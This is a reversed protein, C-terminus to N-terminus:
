HMMGESTIEREKERRMEPIALGLVAGVTLVVAIAMLPREEIASRLSSTTGKIREMGIGGMQRSYDSAMGTWEKAKNWVNEKVDQARESVDGLTEKINAMAPSEEFSMQGESRRRVSRFILMGLGLGAIATPVPHEKISDLINLGWTLSKETFQTM